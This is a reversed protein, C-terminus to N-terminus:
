NMVGLQAAMGGFVGGSAKMRSVVSNHREKAAQQESIARYVAVIQGSVGCRKSGIREIRKKCRLRHISHSIQFITFGTSEVLMRSTADGQKKVADFVKEQMSGKRTTRKKAMAYMFDSGSDGDVLKVDGVKRLRSLTSSVLFVSFGTGNSVEKTTAGYNDKLYEIIIKTKTM